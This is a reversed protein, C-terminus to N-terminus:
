KCEEEVQEFRRKQDERSRSQRGGELRKEGDLGEEFVRGIGEM